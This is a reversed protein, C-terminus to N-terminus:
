SEEEFPMVLQDAIIPPAYPPGFEISLRECFLALGNGQFGRWEPIRQDHIQDRARSPLLIWRAGELSGKKKGLPPRNGAGLPRDKGRGM